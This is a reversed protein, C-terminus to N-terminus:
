DYLFLFRWFFSLLITSKENVGGDLSGSLQKNLTETRDVLKPTLLKEPFANDYLAIQFLVNEVNLITIKDVWQLNSEFM